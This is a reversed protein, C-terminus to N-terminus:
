VCMPPLLTSFRRFCVLLFFHLFICFSTQCPLEIFHSARCAEVANLAGFDVTVRYEGPQKKKVMHIPSGWPSTGPRIIKADLLKNIEEKAIKTMEPSLRRVKSGIPQGNTKIVHCIDSEINTPPQFLLLFPFDNIVIQKYVKTKFCQEKAILVKRPTKHSVEFNSKALKLVNAKETEILRKAGVDFALKYYSLFDAGIIATATDVVIFNWEMERQSLGITITLNRKGYTKVETQNLAFLNRSTAPKDNDVYSLPSISVTSGSDILFKM